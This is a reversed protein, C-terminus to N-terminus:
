QRTSKCENKKRDRNNKLTSYLYLQIPNFGEKTCWDIRLYICFDIGSSIYTLPNQAHKEEIITVHFTRTDHRLIQGQQHALHLQQSAFVQDSLLTNYDKIEELFSSRWREGLAPSTTSWQTRTYSVALILKAGSSLRSTSKILKMSESILRPSLAIVRKDPPIAPAYNLRYGAIILFHQSLFVEPLHPRSRWPENVLPIILNAGLQWRKRNKAQSTKRM